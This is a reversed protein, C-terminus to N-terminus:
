CNVADEQQGGGHRCRFPPWVLRLGEEAGQSRQQQGVGVEQDLLFSTEQFVGTLAATLASAAQQRARSARSARAHDWALGVSWRETMM